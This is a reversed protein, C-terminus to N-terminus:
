RTGRHNSEDKAGKEGNEANDKKPKRYVGKALKDAVIVVNLVKPDPRKGKEDIM